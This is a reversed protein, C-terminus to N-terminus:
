GENTFAIQKASVYTIDHELVEDFDVGVPQFCNIKYPTDEDVNVRCSWVYTGPEGNKHAALVSRKFAARDAGVLKEVAEKRTSATAWGLAWTAFYHHAM